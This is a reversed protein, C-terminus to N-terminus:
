HEQTMTSGQEVLLSPVVQNWHSQTRHPVLLVVLRQMALGEEEMRKPDCYLGWCVVIM